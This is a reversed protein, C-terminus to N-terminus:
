PSRVLRRLCRERWGRGGLRARRAGTRAGRDRDLTAATSEEYRFEAAWPTLASLEDDHPPRSGAAGALGVLYAINHTREFPAELRALVSKIRKEVAQQAHFAVVEDPVRADGVLRELAAEDGAAKAALVRALDQGDRRPM